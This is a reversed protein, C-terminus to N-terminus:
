SGPGAFGDHLAVTVTARASSGRCKFVEVRLGGATAALALRLAAPSASRRAAWPRYLLGLTGGAEAALQLRRLDAVLTHDLWALVAGCGGDRLAQETAWAADRADRAQVVVLRSLAIGVAAFAPAYPVAPPAILTILREASLRALAPMVLALEGKGSLLGAIPEVSPVFIETLAAAPFGGDPLVADLAPHGSPIGREAGPLGAGHVRQGRWLSRQFRQDLLLAALPDRDAAPELDHAAGEMPAADSLNRGTVPGDM